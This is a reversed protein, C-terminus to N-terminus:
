CSCFCCHECRVAVTADFQLANPSGESWKFKLRAPQGEWKAFWIAEASYRQSSLDLAAQLCNMAAAAAAVCSPLTLSNQLFMDYSLVQM